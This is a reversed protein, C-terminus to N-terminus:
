GSNLEDSDLLKSIIGAANFFLGNFAEAYELNATKGTKQASITIWARYVGQWEMTDLIPVSLCSKLIRQKTEQLLMEMQSEYQQLARIKTELTNTIDVFTNPNPSNWGFYKTVIHPQLGKEIQEPFYLHFHSTYSAEYISRGVAQHDAHPDYPDHPDFSFVLDPRVQRLIEIYKGRLEKGSKVEGDPIELYQVEEVGLITAASQAEKKEIEIMQERTMAPDLTGKEGYTTCLNVIKHGMSALKAITGGAFLTADDPHAEVVLITLNENIDWLEKGM